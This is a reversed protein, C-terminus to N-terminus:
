NHLVRQLILNLAKKLEMIAINYGNLTNNSDNIVNNGNFEKWDEKRM